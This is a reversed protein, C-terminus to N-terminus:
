QPWPRGDCSSSLEEQLAWPLADRYNCYLSARGHAKCFDSFQDLHREPHQISHVYPVMINSPTCIAWRSSASKPIAFCLIEPSQTFPHAICFRTSRYRLLRYKTQCEETCRPAKQPRSTITGYKPPLIGSFVWNPAHIFVKLGFEDFIFVQM